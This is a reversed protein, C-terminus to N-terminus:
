MKRPELGVKGELGAEGFVGANGMTELQISAQLKRVSGVTDMESSARAVAKCAARTNRPLCLALSVLVLWFSSKKKQLKGTLPPLFYM